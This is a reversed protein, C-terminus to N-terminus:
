IALTVLPNSRHRCEHNACAPCSAPQEHLLDLRGAQGSNLLSEEWLDRIWTKWPIVAPSRWASRGAAAQARGFQRHLHRALRNNAVM